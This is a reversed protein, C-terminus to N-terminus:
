RGNPPSGVDPLGPVTGAAAPTVAPAARPKGADATALQFGVGAVVVLGIAIAFGRAYKL